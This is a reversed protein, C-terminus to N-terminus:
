TEVLQFINIFDVQEITPSRTQEELIEADIYLMLNSFFM